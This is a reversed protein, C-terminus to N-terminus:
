LIRLKMLIIEGEFTGTNTLCQVSSIDTGLADTRLSCQTRDYRSDGSWAVSVGHGIVRRINGPDIIFDAVISHTEGPRLSAVIEGMQLTFAM